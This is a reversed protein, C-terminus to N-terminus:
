CNYLLGAGDEVSLSRIRRSCLWKVFGDVDFLSLVVERRVDEPLLRHYPGHSLSFAIDDTLDTVKDGIKTPANCLTEFHDKDPIGRVALGKMGSFAKLDPFLHLLVVEYASGGCHLWFSGNSDDVTPADDSQFGLGNLVHRAFSHGTPAARASYRFTDTEQNGKSPKLLIEGSERVVEWRQGGLAISDEGCTTNKVRAIIEGTTADVVPTGPGETDLNHHFRGGGKELMDSMQEGLTLRGNTEVLVEDELLRDLIREATNEGETEPWVDMALEILQKRSRGNLKAQAVFSATQQVYVSWRRAYPKEDLRGDCAANLMSALACAEIWDRAIPVVRTIGTRRGGRGIRQLLGGTDPPAGVLVIGDVNGIDIGVELTTTAVLVADRAKSFAQEAGERAVKELSGHHAFVRMDRRRILREALFTSLKDCLARTPVFVLLKRCIKDGGVTLATWIHREISDLDASGNIQIIKKRVASVTSLNNLNCWGTKPDDLLIEIDRSGAVCVVEADDGLLRKALRDPAAVTASAGCVQVGSTPTLDHQHAYSRLGRLRGLLWILQDGRSSGDFLHVEDIVIGEVDALLHGNFRGDQYEADRVLMSDFSEPTTVLVDPRKKKDRHDSTQRGCSWGLEKLPRELREFLDNVLARTPAIGLVRVHGGKSDGKQALRQVLPAYLAETKGSATASTILVNQRALIPKVAQKQIERFGRFQGYFASGANGLCKFLDRDSLM